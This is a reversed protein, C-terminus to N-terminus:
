LSEAKEAIDDPIEFNGVVSQVDDDDEIRDILKLLRSAQEVNNVVIVSQPKWTIKAEDPDGLQKIIKDRVM